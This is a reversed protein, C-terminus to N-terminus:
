GDTLVKEGTLMAALDDRGCAVLERHKAHRWHDRYSRANPDLLELGRADALTFAERRQGPHQDDRRVRLDHLYRGLDCHCTASRITTRGTRSTLAIFLSSSRFDV